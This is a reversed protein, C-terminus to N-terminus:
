HRVRGLAVGRDDQVLRNFLECGGSGLMITMAKMEM